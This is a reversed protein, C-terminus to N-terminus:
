KELKYEKEMHKLVSISQKQYDKMWVVENDLLSQFLLTRNFFENFKSQDFNFSPTKARLPGFDMAIIELSLTEQLFIMTYRQQEIHSDFASYYGVISDSVSKNSILRLGGFNKLQTFTIQSPEFSVLKNLYRMTLIYMKRYDIQAVPSELVMILSDIGKIQNEYTAIINQISATDQVIDKSMSEIYEMEKHKEISQERLNEM